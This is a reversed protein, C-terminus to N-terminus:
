VVDLSQVEDTEAAVTNRVFRLNVWDFTVPENIGAGVGVEQLLARLATDVDVIQQAVSKQKLQLGDILARQGAIRGKDFESIEIVDSEPVSTSAVPANRVAAKRTGRSGSM